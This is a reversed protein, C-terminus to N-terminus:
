NRPRFPFYWFFQLPGKETERPVQLVEPLSSAVWRACPANGSASNLLPTPPQPYAGPIGQGKLWRENACSTAQPHYVWALERPSSVRGLGESCSESLIRKPSFKARDEGPGLSPTLLISRPRRWLVAPSKSPDNPGLVRTGPCPFPSPLSQHSSGLNSSELHEQREARQRAREEYDRLPDWTPPPGM